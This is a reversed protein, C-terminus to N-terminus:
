KDLEMIFPQQIADCIWRLFRAGDAGDIVRHDYSLSLPLMLRPTFQGNNGYVPEWQGRSVGLIAVEPWNVIPTFCTGGIGGLNTLTFCGGHMEELTTKKNRAREAIETLEDAIQIISKQDVDRVVPVLLGRDTDIAVGIHYYKKYIIEHTNMDLSANFQPFAKLASAMVKMIFPTITVKKDQTSISKRLKELESIDTKDFQTVHPIMTWAHSLHETTKRRINNMPKREIQGWKSFDPLPQPTVSGGRAIAGTNLAKAFAKVDSISIRGGLGSGPVQTVDIGIERALARVSPAAPVDGGFKRQLKPSAEGVAQPLQRTESKPTEVPAPQTEVKAHAAPAASPTTAASAGAELRLVVQGVNVQDGEKILIEKIVGAVSAPVEISAKDTEIEILTQGKTVAAGVKVTVRVATGGKINEGLEPLKFDTLM